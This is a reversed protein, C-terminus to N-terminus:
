LEGVENYQKGASNAYMIVEVAKPYVQELTDDWETGNYSSYYGTRRLYIIENHTHDVIKYVRVVTEGGGEYGGQIVVPTIDLDKYPNGSFYEINELTYLLDHDMDYGECIEENINRDNMLSEFKYM